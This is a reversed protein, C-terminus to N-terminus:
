EASSDSLYDILQDATGAWGDLHDEFAEESPLLSHEISMLTRDEGVAEFAVDVISVATPDAWGSHSWTFRLQHPREIVLFRGMILVLDGSNDVDFRVTGGVRPELEIAVCRAPRPCMWEALSEPDLWEDFVEEPTAPMVRQVRAIPQDSM